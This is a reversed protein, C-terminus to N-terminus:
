NQPRCIEATANQACVLAQLAEILKKQDNIQKQQAEIQVQQEQVANVLVVGVRDYKVGEIEGKENTSALLPEIKAVEEAVLGFDAKNNARWNFTVPHLQKILSLGSRFPNVNHKYRISSSCRAVQFLTNLCLSDFGGVAPLLGVTGYVDLKDGNNNVAQGISINGEPFRISAINTGSGRTVQLWPNESNEADNLASFVLVNAAAYNQWRKGDPGGGTFNLSFRPAVSPTDGEVLVSPGVVHLKHRPTSTGIGVNVNSGLVLSNNQSVLADNGVATANVLNDAGVAASHGILTIGAGTTNSGGASEGLFTNHFGTTNHNGANSGVFSNGVGTSVQGAAFGFFANGSATTNSEGAQSGFFSNFNGGTNLLGAEAGFFANRNGGINSNGALPGVFLNQTGTASLVREGALNYQTTANFINANGGGNISFSGSQQGIGPINQIYDTSGATPTRADNLRTDSTQVYNGADVGALSAANAANTATLSRVAFPVSSVQQRPTLVRYSDGRGNARVSIELWRDAGAPFAVAGFDLQTSFSGNQVTAVLTQTAGIQNTGSSADFLKFEFQYDGSAPVGSDALKGQYTVASTQALCTVAALAVLLFSLALNKM